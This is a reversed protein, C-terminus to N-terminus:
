HIIEEAFNFAKLIKSEATGFYQSRFKEEQSRYTKIYNYYGSVANYAGWLTGQAEPTQQTPHNYSFDLTEEIM